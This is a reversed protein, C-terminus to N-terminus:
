KEKERECSVMLVPLDELSKENRVKELLQKGNLKPIHFDSILLDYKGSMLM